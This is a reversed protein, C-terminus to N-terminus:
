LTWANQFKLDRTSYRDGKLLEAVCGELNKRVAVMLPTRGNVDRACVNARAGLLASVCKVNGSEVACHLASLKSADNVASIDAGSKLLAELAGLNGFVSALGLPTFCKQM